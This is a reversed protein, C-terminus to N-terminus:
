HPALTLVVFAAALAAVSLILGAVAQRRRYRAHWADWTTAIARVVSADLPGTVGAFEVTLDPQRWRAPVLLGDWLATLWTALDPWIVRKVQGAAVARDVDDADGPRIWTVQAVGSAALRARVVAAAPGDPDCVVMVEGVGDPGNM